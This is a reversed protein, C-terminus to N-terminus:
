VRERATEDIRGFIRVMPMKYVGPRVSVAVEPKSQIAATEKNVVAIRVCEAAKV